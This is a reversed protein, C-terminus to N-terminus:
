WDTGTYTLPRERSKPLELSPVLLAVIVSSLRHPNDINRTIFVVINSSVKFGDCFACSISRLREMCVVVFLKICSM